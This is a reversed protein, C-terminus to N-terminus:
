KKEPKGVTVTPHGAGASMASTRPQLYDPIAKPSLGAIMAADKSAELHKLAQVLEHSDELREALGNALVRYIIGIARRIGRTDNPVVFDNLLEEIVPNRAM